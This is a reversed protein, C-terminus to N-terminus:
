VLCVTDESEINYSSLTDDNQLEFCDFILRQQDCPCRDALHIQAKLQNVTTNSVDVNFTRIQGTLSKVYIPVTVGVIETSAPPPDSDCNCKPQAHAHHKIEEDLRARKNVMWGEEDEDDDDDDDDDDAELEEWYLSFPEVGFVREYRRLTRMYRDDRDKDDGGRPNHDIIRPAPVDSPLIKDCFQYYLKPLLLFCHWVKDLLGSPSLKTADLDMYLVKLSLFRSLEIIAKKAHEEEFEEKDCLLGLLESFDFASVVQGIRDLEKQTKQQKKPILRFGSMSIIQSWFHACAFFLTM